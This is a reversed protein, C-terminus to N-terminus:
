GGFSGEWWGWSWGSVGGFGVLVWLSEFFFLLCFVLVRDVVLGVFFM